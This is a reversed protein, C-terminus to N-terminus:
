SIYALFLYFRIIGEDDDCILMRVVGKALNHTQEYKSLNFKFTKDRTSYDGSDISKIRENLTENMM